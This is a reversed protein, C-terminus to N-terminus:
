VKQTLTGIFVPEIDSNNNVYHDQIEFQENLFVSSKMQVNGFSELKQTLQEKTLFDAERFIEDKDKNRGLISDANLCGLLLYGGPKLVRFIEKLVQEQDDVFELMTVSSIMQFSENEFPIDQANGEIFTADLKKRFAYELMPKSNDLATVKFGLEIFFETWHGTGCGLELMEGCPMENLLDKLTDKELNDVNKGFETQYYADYDQAVESLLFVNKM